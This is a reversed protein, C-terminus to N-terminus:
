KQMQFITKNAVRINMPVGCVYSWITLIIEVSVSACSAIVEGM